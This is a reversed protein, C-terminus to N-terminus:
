HHPPADEYRFLMGMGGLAVAVYRSLRYVPCFSGVPFLHLTISQGRGQQYTKSFRLQLLIVGGVEHYDSVQLAGFVATSSQALVESPHFTGFFVTM